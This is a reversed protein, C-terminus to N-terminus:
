SLSNYWYFIRRLFSSVLFPSPLFHKNKLFQRLFHIFHYYCRVVEVHKVRLFKQYCLSIQEIPACENWIKKCWCNRVLMQVVLLQASIQMVLLQVPIGGGANKGGCNLASLSTHKCQSSLSPPFNKDSLIARKM